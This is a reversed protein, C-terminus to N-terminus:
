YIAVFPVTHRDYTPLPPGIQVLSRFDRTPCVHHRRDTLSQRPSM